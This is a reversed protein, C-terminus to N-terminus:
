FVFCLKNLLKKTQNFQKENCIILDIEHFSWTNYNNKKLVKQIKNLNNRLKIFIDMIIFTQAYM